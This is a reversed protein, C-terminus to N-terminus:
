QQRHASCASVNRVCKQYARRVAVDNTPWSGANIPAFIGLGSIPVPIATYRDLKQLANWFVGPTEQM